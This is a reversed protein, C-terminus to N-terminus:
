EVCIEVGEQTDWFKLEPISPQWICSPVRDYHSRDLYYSDTRDPLTYMWARRDLRDTNYKRREYWTPHSELHDLAALGKEDTSWLEGFITALSDEAEYRVVGPFGGFSMMRFDGTISDYGLWKAGIRQMLVHNGCQKKLSGYVLVRVTGKDSTDGDAPSNTKCPETTEKTSPEQENLQDKQGTTM